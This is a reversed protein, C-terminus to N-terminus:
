TCILVHTTNVSCGSGASNHSFQQQHATTEKVSFRFKRVSMRAAAAAAAAAVQLADDVTIELRPRMQQQQHATTGKV